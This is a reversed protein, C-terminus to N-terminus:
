FNFKLIDQGSSVLYVDHRKIPVVQERSTAVCSYVLIGNSAFIRLRDGKKLGCVRVGQEEAKVSIASKRKAMDESVREIDSPDAAPLLTVYHANENEYVNPILDKESRGAGMFTQNTVYINLYARTAQRVGPVKVTAYTRRIGGCDEFDSPLVVVEAESSVPEMIGPHPYVGLHIIENSNLGRSSRDTLEVVFTNVGDEVSQGVLRCDVEEYGVYAAPAMKVQRRFSMAKRKPHHSVQFLNDYEVTATTSLYGSFDDGIPYKVVFTREHCPAVYSDAIEFEEDNVTAIVKTIPSTGTNRINFSVPLTSSGLLAKQTYGVSYEFNNSFFKENQMVVAAGDNEVDALTYVVKIRSDDLFGDFDMMTLSDIEGGVTLPYTVHPTPKLTIRSANLM